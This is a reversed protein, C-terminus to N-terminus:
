NKKSLDEAHGSKIRLNNIFNQVDKFNNSLVKIYKKRTKLDDENDEYQKKLKLNEEKKKM